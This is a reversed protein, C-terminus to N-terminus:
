PNAAFTATITHNAQINTFPYSTVAGVSSGDVVVDVIHYGTNPIISYTQNAGAQFGSYTYPTITGNAPQTVTITYTIPIFDAKITYNQRVNNFTYTTVAGVSAGNVAVYNIKYGHNPAITYTQTGGAPVITPGAPSISGNASTTSATITYTSVLSATITHNASITNFRYSTVAGVNVGDVFVNDVLYGTNPTITFTQSLGGLLSTTGPSITGNAPQTVTVTWTPNAAFTATISHDAQINTFSYSSVAGVSSGDVAVDVIHYGDNPIISYNQNAGATFSSYTDPTVYGNSTQNVTITFTIPVFSVAISHNVMVNNFNYTLPAPTIAVGDIAVYAIKNGSGPAISFSQSGGPNVSIAGSPTISGGGAASATITCIDPGHISVANAALRAKTLIPAGPSPTAFLTGSGVHCQGCSLDVDTWVAPFAGDLATNATTQGAYFAAATPFTSYNPDTSIRFLHLGQTLHCVACSGPIDASTGTPFPTGPGTRHNITQLIYQASAHCDNCENVFPKPSGAAQVVSQHPDHCGTCGRNKGTSPDKFDSNYSGTMSVSLDPSNQARQAMTGSFRAHPSNLFAQGTSSQFFPAYNWTGAGAVCAAYNLSVGDSCSGRDSVALEASLVINRGSDVSEQRHCEICLATANEFTPVAVKLTGSKGICAPYDGDGAELHNGSSDYCAHGGTDYAADRHCRECQIGDQFWSSTSSSGSTPVRSFQANTQVPLPGSADFRYGTTHCRACQYSGGSSLEGTFGGDYVTNLTYPSMWGGFLYFLAKPTQAGATLVTGASWDFVSGSGYPDAADYIRGDPSAWPSGPIVKRLVNKHGTKLYGSKDCFSRDVPVCTYGGGANPTCSSGQLCIPDTNIGSGHCDLCVRDKRSQAISILPRSHCSACYSYYNPDDPGTAGAPETWAGASDPLAGDGWYTGAGGPNLRAIFNRIVGSISTFGGGALIKGDPQVAMSYIWGNVDPAFTIDLSGGPNLKAMHNRTLGGMSTFAGGAFIKGDPQLATSYVASNASPDFSTDLSGDANLRAIYNRGQGGIRTFWGGALIKGDPQVTICEVANNAKTDFSTDLTGNPNLRAFYSRGQSSMDMFSGGVLIKGDSQVAISFVYNSAYAPFTTDPTGDPNLRTIYNRTVGGIRTFWGGVLIKGDSQVAISSVQSNANPDFSADITGDPNLRAMHNRTVGGISAFSGGVLIKGDSQLAISSVQSNASPNFSADLTGDSNLRAIYNKTVGGIRTFEGGVVIKGDSQVALSYVTGNANPDFEDTASTASASGQLLFFPLLVLLFVLSLAINKRGVALMKSSMNM